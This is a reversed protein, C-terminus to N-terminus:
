STSASPGDETPCCAACPLRSTWPRPSRRLNLRGPRDAPAAARGHVRARPHIGAASPGAGRPDRPRRPRRRDRAAGAGDAQRESWDLTPEAGNALKRARKSAVLVLQFLNPVNKLCDEVTIRAMATPRETQSPCPAYAYCSLPYHIASPPYHLVNLRATRRWRKGIRWGSDAIRKRLSPRWRKWRRRGIPAGATRAGAVIAELEGLARDFDDNVVVCDFERWHAMDSAADRLRRQIVEETDTGRGRLRRELEARSPPLIFISVCEPLARRVQAAGQWDIELILDQGGSLSQDVQGRSTGYSNDFVTAHELFEGADVMRSFEDKGVFFYDRGHEETPRRARTTYSISFRLVPVREMLARVLSTKGAGSPAAIVFLRGRRGTNDKM